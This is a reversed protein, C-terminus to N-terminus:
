STERLARNVFFVMFAMLCLLLGCFFLASRHHGVAYSMELAINATLTRVPHLLSAPIQVINGAVMLVAMTEGMARGLGIIAGSYIGRASVPLIIHWIITELNLGLALANKYLNQDLNIFTREILLIMTPLIMLSLVVIASLLHVGTGGLAQMPPVLEVLGWMGFVVSPIGAFVEVTRRMLFLIKKTAYYSMFLAVFLALPLSLLLSGFGVLLSAVVLSLVGYHGELPSWIVSFINDVSVGSNLLPTSEKVLFFLIFVLVLGVVLSSFKLISKFLFDHLQRFSIFSKM